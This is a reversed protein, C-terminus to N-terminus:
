HEGHIIVGFSPCFRDVILGDGQVQDHEARSRQRPNAGSEPAQKAQSSRMSGRGVIWATQTSAALSPPNSHTAEPFATPAKRARNKTATGSGRLKPPLNPQALRRQTPDVVDARNRETLSM